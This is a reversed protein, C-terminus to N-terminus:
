HSAEWILITPGSKLKWYRVSGSESPTVYGPKWLCEEVAVGFIIDRNRHFERRTLEITRQGIQIRLVEDTWESHREVSTKVSAMQTIETLGSGNMAAFLVRALESDEASSGYWPKCVGAVFENQRGGLRAPLDVYLIGMIQHIVTQQGSELDVTVLLRDNDRIVQMGNFAAMVESVTMGPRVQVGQIELRANPTQALLSYCLTLFTSCTCLWKM